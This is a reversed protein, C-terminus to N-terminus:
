TTKVGAQERLPAAPTETEYAGEVAKKALKLGDEPGFEGLKRPRAEQAGYLFATWMGKGISSVQGVLIAGGAAFLSHILPGQQWELKM